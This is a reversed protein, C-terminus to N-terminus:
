KGIWLLWLFTYAVVIEAVFGIILVFLIDKLDSWADKGIRDQWQNFKEGKRRRLLRAPSVVMRSEFALFMVLPILCPYVRSFFRAYENANLVDIIFLALQGAFVSYILKKLFSGQFVKICCNDYCWIAFLLYPTLGILVGAWAFPITHTFLEAFWSFEGMTKISEFTFLVKKLFYFISVVGICYFLAFFAMDRYRRRELLKLVVPTDNQCHIFENFKM